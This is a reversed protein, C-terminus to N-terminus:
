CGEALTFLPNMIFETHLNHSNESQFLVFVVKCVHCDNIIIVEFM